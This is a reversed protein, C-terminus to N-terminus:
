SFEQDTVDSPAKVLAFAFSLFLPATSGMTWVVFGWRRGLHAPSEKAAQRSATREMEKAAIGLKGEASRTRPRASKVLSVVADGGLEEDVVVGYPTARSGTEPFTRPASLPFLRTSRYALAVASLLPAAASITSRCAVNPSL